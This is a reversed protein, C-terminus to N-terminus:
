ARIEQLDLQHPYVPAECRPILATGSASMDRRALPQAGGPAESRRAQGLLLLCSSPCGSMRTQASRAWVARAGAGSRPGAYLPRGHGKVGRAADMRSAGRWSVEARGGSPSPPATWPSTIGALALCPGTAKLFSAEFRELRWGNWALQPEPSDAPRGPLVGEGTLLGLAPTACPPALCPRRALFSPVPVDRRSSGRLPAPALSTRNRLSRVRIDPASERQNSERQAPLSFTVRRALRFRDAPVRFTTPLFSSRTPAVRPQLVSVLTPYFM